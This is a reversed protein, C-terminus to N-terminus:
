KVARLKEYVLFISFTLSIRIAPQNKKKKLILVRIGELDAKLKGLTVIWSEHQLVKWLFLCFFSVPPRSAM